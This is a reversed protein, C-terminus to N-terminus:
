QRDDPHVLHSPSHTLAMQAFTFGSYELGRRNTFYLVGDPGRVWVIQPVSDALLRFDADDLIPDLRASDRQTSDLPLRSTAVGTRADSIESDPVDIGRSMKSRPTRRQPLSSNCVGVNLAASGM